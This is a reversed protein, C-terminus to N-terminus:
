TAKRSFWPDALWSKLYGKLPSIRTTFFFEMVFKEQACCIVFSLVVSGLFGSRQLLPFKGQYIM